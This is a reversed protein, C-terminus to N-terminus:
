VDRSPKPQLMQWAAPTEVWWKMARKVTALDTMQALGGLIAGIVKACERDTLDTRAPETTLKM